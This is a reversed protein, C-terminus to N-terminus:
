EINKINTQNYGHFEDKQQQVNNLLLLLLM